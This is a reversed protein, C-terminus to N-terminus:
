QLTQENARNQRKVNIDSVLRSEMRDVLQSLVETIKRTPTREHSRKSPPEKADLTIIVRILFGKSRVSDKGMRLSKYVLNSPTNKGASATGQTLNITDSIVWLDGFPFVNSVLIVWPTFTQVSTPQCPFIM